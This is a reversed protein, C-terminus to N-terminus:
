GVQPAFDHSQESDGNLNLNHSNMDLSGNGLLEQEITTYQM